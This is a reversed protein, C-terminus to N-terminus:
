RPSNWWKRGKGNGGRKRRGESEAKDCVPFEDPDQRSETKVLESTKDPTAAMMATMDALGLKSGLRRRTM